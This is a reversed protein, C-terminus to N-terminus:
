CDDVLIELFRQYREAEFEMLLKLRVSIRVTLMDADSEEFGDYRSAAFNRAGLNIKAMEKRLLAKRLKPTGIRGLAEQCYAVAMKVDAQSVAKDAQLASVVRVVFRDKESRSVIQENELKLVELASQLSMASVPMAPFMLAACLALVIKM